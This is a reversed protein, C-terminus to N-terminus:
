EHNAEPAKAPGVIECVVDDLVIHVGAVFEGAQPGEHTVPPTLFSTSRSLWFVASDCPLRTFPDERVRCWGSGHAAFYRIMRDYLRQRRTGQAYWYLYTPRHKKAWEQVGNAVGGLVQFAGGTNMIGYGGVVTGDPMVFDELMFTVEWANAAALRALHEDDYSELYTM